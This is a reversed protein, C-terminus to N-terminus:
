NVRFYDFAATFGPASSAVAAYNGAFVGASAVNMTFAFQTGVTYNVGDTSVSGTWNNGTRKLRLWVPGSGVTRPAEVRVTPAGNAFTASFLTPTSGGEYTIDLRLWNKSDQEVLIGESQYATKVVSDLKVEIQFDTNSAPQMIRASMNGGTWADHTSGGAVTILAQRGNLAVKDNAMPDIFNWMGSNLATANFEDSRLGSGVVTGRDGRFRQRVAGVHEPPM